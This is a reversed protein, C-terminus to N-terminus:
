ESDKYKLLQTYINEALGFGGQDAVRTALQDIYFGTFADAGKGGTTTLAKALGGHKLMQSIFSAEFKKAAEKLDKDDATVSSKNESTKVSTPIQGLPMTPVYTM